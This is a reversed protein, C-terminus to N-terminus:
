FGRRYTESHLLAIFVLLNHVKFFKCKKFKSNVLFRFSINSYSLRWQIKTSTVFSRKCRKQRAGNSIPSVEFYVWFLVGPIIIYEVGYDGYSYVQLRILLEM